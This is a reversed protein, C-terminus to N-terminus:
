AALLVGAGELGTAVSLRGAKNADLQRAVLSNQRERFHFDEAMPFVNGASSLRRLRTGVSPPGRILGNIAVPIGVPAFPSLRVRRVGPRLGGPPFEVEALVNGNLLNGHDIPFPEFSAEVAQHDPQQICLTLIDEPRRRECSGFDQFHVDLRPPFNRVEGKVALGTSRGGGARADGVLLWGPGPWVWPAWPPDSM